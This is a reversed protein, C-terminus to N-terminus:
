IGVAVETARIEAERKVAREHEYFDPACCMYLTHGNDGGLGCAFVGTGPVIEDVVQGDKVRMVRGGIADAIWVAGESDICNGDPAVKVQGQALATGVDVHDPLDGFSAFTARNTLSGDAEINFMSMRNGLTENVILRNDRTIVMGNPFWMDEAARHVSGDPDVRLLVTPAIAAGGMLDFGFNGVYAHGRNDAMMDNPHGTVYNTLDAHVALTGDKERRMIKRDRMSVFLLRGDPLWGLGSPQNPVAIESRLDSGDEKMSMIQHTYFDSFWLRGERWRPCETFSMGSVVTKINREM